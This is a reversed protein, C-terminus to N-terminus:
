QKLGYLAMQESSRTTHEPDIGSPAQIARYKGPTTLKHLTCEDMRRFLQRTPPLHRFEDEVGGLTERILEFAEDHTGAAEAGALREVFLTFREQKTKM